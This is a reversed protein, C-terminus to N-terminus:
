LKQQVYLQLVHQFGLNKNPTVMLCDFALYPQSPFGEQILSGNSVCPCIIMEKLHYGPGGPFDHKKEAPPDPSGVEQVFECTSAPFDVVSICLVIGQNIM